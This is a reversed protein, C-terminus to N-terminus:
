HLVATNGLKLSRNCLIHIFKVYQVTILSSSSPLDFTIHQEGYELSHDQHWSPLASVAMCKGELERDLLQRKGDQKQIEAGTKGLAWPQGLTRAWLLCEIIKNPPPHLYWHFACALALFPELPSPTPPPTLSLPLVPFYVLLSVWGHFLVLNLQIAEQAWWRMWGTTPHALTSAWHEKRNPDWEGWGSKRLYHAGAQDVKVTTQENQLVQSQKAKGTGHGWVIVMGKLFQKQSSESPAM